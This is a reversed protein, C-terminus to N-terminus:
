GNSTCTYKRFWSIRKMILYEFSFINGPSSM